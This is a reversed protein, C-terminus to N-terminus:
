RRVLNPDIAGIAILLQEAVAVHRGRLLADNVQLAEAHAAVEDPSSLGGRRGELSRTTELLVKGAPDQTQVYAAVLPPVAPSETRRPHPRALAMLERQFSGDTGAHDTLQSLSQRANLHGGTFRHILLLDHVENLSIDKVKANDRQQLGVLRPVKVNARAFDFLTARFAPTTVATQMVDQIRATGAPTLGHTQRLKELLISCRDAGKESGKFEKLQKQLTELTQQPHPSSTGAAAPQRQPSAQRPGASQERGGPMTVVCNAPLQALTQPLQKLNHCGKLNLTKLERLESLDPLTTLRSCSALDLTKLNSLRGLSAPLETLGNHQTLKLTKLSQFVGINEPLAQLGKSAEKGPSHIDLTQLSESMGILTSPLETIGTGKLNLTTLQNLEGISPPLSTLLPSNRIDLTKLKKLAWINEPLSTLERNGHLELTALNPTFEPLKTCRSGTLAFHQLGRLEHLAASPLEPAQLSEIKLHTANSRAAKLVAACATDISQAQTQTQTLPTALGDVRQPPLGVAKAGRAWQDLRRTVKPIDAADTRAAPPRSPGAPTPAAAFQHPSGRVEEPSSRRSPLIGARPRLAAPQQMLVNQM